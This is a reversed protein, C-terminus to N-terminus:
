AVLKKLKRNAYPLWTKNIFEMVTEDPRTNHDAYCQLIKHNNLSYELTVFPTSPNDKNRVFFILSEERVFKQDYGMRGVCHHLLEGEKILDAPSKAIIVCYCDNLNRQLPIYKEAIKSFKEYLSKKDKQDQLAKVTAWQNIRTDHWRRFDKPYRNKKETMDIELNKCARMYDCYLPYDINQKDLYTLFTYIESKSIINSITNRYEYSRLLEKSRRSLNQSQLISIDKKYAEIIVKSSVYPNQGYKNQLFEKNSIIWKRFQKDKGILRLISKNTAFQPLDLKMLYEAQPFEEYIRLYKIIDTYPYKDAVSYKYEKFTLAYKSNILKGYIRYYKDDARFWQNYDAKSKSETIGQYYWGVHFGMLSYEIDNVFCTASHVAHVVIQKCFWQHNKMKCAVTVQALDNKIRTLYSYFTTQQYGNIREKEDLQRIRNIIYKPMPKIDKALFM